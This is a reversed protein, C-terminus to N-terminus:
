QELRRVQREWTESCRPGMQPRTFLYFRGRMRNQAKNLVAELGAVDIGRDTVPAGLYKEGEPTSFCVCTWAIYSVGIWCAGSNIKTAM